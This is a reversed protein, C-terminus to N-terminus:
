KEERWCASLPAYITRAVDEFRQDFDRPFSLLRQYNRDQGESGPSIDEWVQLAKEISKERGQDELVEFYVYSTEPLFPLPSALGEDFLTLLEVLRRRADASDLPEIRSKKAKHHDFSFTITSFDGLVANAFLHTLWAEMLQRKRLMGPRIDLIDHDIVNAISFAITERRDPLSLTGHLTETELTEIGELEAVAGHISHARGLERDLQAAGIDGDMVLGSATMEERWADISGGHLLAYLASAALQHRELGDLSFSETDALDVDDDEFYVGLRNRLYYRSPNRFFNTLQSLERAALEPDQEFETDAFPGHPTSGGRLADYWNRDFTILGSVNEDYYDECFPQLRHVTLLERDFIREAYDIFESVLVSPPKEQNDRQGRGEFSVYFHKQASLLAELFLYRDDHRRSRDGKRHPGREMLDFAVPRSERPYEGDNMGLLCVVKFPVSRMPVLTAFTIGGSIFGRNQRSRSLERDLWHRIMDPSLPEDYGAASTQEQLTILLERVTGLELEETNHPDFFDDILALITQQWAAVTKAEDLADRYEGLLTVFHCLQGLVPAQAAELDFPLISGFIGADREMAYGLLLRDLGFQWTNGHQPPLDWRTAKSQGDLEWRIGAERIWDNVTSLDEESLGFKRAITPVELLDMVETSTLRSNPLAMLTEFAVLVPSEQTLSRDAVAYYIRDKFVADIYPAYEAVDPAMVIIDGPTIDPDDRIMALLQDYLVEVERMRSHCAHVQLSRDTGAVTQRTPAVESGFEGGFELDFIDQKVIELMTDGHPTVFADQEVLDDIELLLELFERGQKGMSSLLPNGVDLYDRDDLVDDKGLIRKVSRRALDKESVIDGWYHRCPNLFYLDIDVHRSLAHLAELHMAPLSSLGFVAIHGPVGAPLSERDRLAKLTERHLHARHPKFQLGPAHTLARWIDAQWSDPADERNTEWGIMWEPRYVLYQDFLAAIKGALQFLRVQPDGSGSLFQQVGVFRDGDFDPLIRMLHWALREISWPSEEPIEIGPLLTRYLRWVLNAPLVCDINASIGEREALRLKLWQGMGFSQVIVTQPEFPDAPALRAREAFADVLRYMSNSQVLNIM